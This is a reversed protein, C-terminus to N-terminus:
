EAPEDDELVGKCIDVINKAVTLNSPKYFPCDEDELGCWVKTLAICECIEYGGRKQSSFFRCDRRPEATFYRAPTEWNTM